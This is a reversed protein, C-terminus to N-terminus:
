LVLLRVSLWLRPPSAVHYPIGLTGIVVLFFIEIVFVVLFSGVGKKM